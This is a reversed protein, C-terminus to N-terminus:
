HKLTQIIKKKIIIQFLTFILKIQISIIEFSILNILANKNAKWKKNKKVKFIENENKLKTTTEEMWEINQQSM